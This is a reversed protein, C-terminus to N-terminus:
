YNTEDEYVARVISLKVIYILVGSFAHNKRGTLTCNGPHLASISTNIMCLM